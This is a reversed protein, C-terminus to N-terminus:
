CNFQKFNLIYYNKNNLRLWHNRRLQILPSSVDLRPYRKLTVPNFARSM